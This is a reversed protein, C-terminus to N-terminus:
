FFPNPSNCTTILFRSFDHLNPSNNAQEHIMQTLYKTAVARAAPNTISNTWRNKACTLAADALLQREQRYATFTLLEAEISQSQPCHPNNSQPSKIKVQYQYNGPPPQDRYHTQATEAIQAYPQDSHSRRSVIYYAPQSLEDIHQSQYDPDHYFHDFYPYYPYYPHHDQWSLNISQNIPNSQHTLIAIHNDCSLDRDQSSAHQVGPTSTQYQVAYPAGGDQAHAPAPNATTLIVLATLAALTAIAAINRLRTPIRQQTVPATPHPM